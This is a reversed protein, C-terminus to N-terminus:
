TRIKKAFIRGLDLKPVPIDLVFLLATCLMGAHLVVSFGVAPLVYQMGFLLPFIIASSTIPLGHFVTNNGDETRQREIELVNYFALRILGCLCYLLLIGIGVWSDMGLLYSLLAPLLGFSVMDCLSDLQIGFNKEQATRNKKTRAVTGDFMDFLGALMLCIVAWAYQGRVALFVGCVSSILNGYTLIVTYDYFGILKM